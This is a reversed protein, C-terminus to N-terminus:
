DQIQFCFKFEIEKGNKLLKDFKRKTDLLSRHLYIDRGEKYLFGKDLLQNKLHYMRPLTINLDELLPQAKKRSFFNTSSDNTLLFVLLKHESFGLSYNGKVELMKLYYDWFEKLDVKHARNLDKNAVPNLMNLILREM